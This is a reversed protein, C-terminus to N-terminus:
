KLRFVYAILGELFPPVHLGEVQSTVREICRSARRLMAEACSADGRAVLIEAKTVKGALSPKTYPHLIHLGDSDLTTYPKAHVFARPRTARPYDRCEAPLRKLTDVRVGIGRRAAELLVLLGFAGLGRVEVELVDRAELTNVAECALSAPLMLASVWDESASAITTLTEAPAAAYDALFGDAELGPTWWDQVRYPAVLHGSLHEAGPTTEVVRGAGTFGQIVGNRADLVGQRIAEEVGTWAAVTVKVIVWGPPILPLPRKALTPEGRWTITARELPM